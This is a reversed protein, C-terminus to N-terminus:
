KNNNNNNEVTFHRANGFIFFVFGAKFVLCRNESGKLSFAHFTPFMLFSGLLSHM